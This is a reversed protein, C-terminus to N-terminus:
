YMNYRCQDWTTPESNEFGTRSICCGSIKTEELPGRNRAPTELVDDSLVRSSRDGIDLIRYTCSKFKRTRSPKGLSFDNGSKMVPKLTCSSRTVTHGDSYQM